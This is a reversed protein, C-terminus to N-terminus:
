IHGLWESRSWNPVTYYCSARPCLKNSKILLQSTSEGSNPNPCSGGRQAKICIESVGAMCRWETYITFNNRSRDHMTLMGNYLVEREVHQWRLLDLRPKERVSSLISRTTSYLLRSLDSYYQLIMHLRRDLVAQGGPRICYLTNKCPVSNLLRGAARCSSINIFMGCSTNRILWEEFEQM